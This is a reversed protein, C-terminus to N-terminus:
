ETTGYSVSETLAANGKAAPDVAEGPKVSGTGMLLWDLSCGLAQALGIAYEGKPFQGAEYNQITTNSVGIAKALNEQTLHCEERRFRLRAEFGCNEWTSDGPTSVNRFLNKTPSNRAM